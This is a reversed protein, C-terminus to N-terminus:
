VKPNSLLAMQTGHRSVSLMKTFCSLTVVTLNVILWVCACVSAISLLPVFAFLTGVNLGGDRPRAM